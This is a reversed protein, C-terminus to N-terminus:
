SVFQISISGIGGDIDIRYEGEGFTGGDSLSKGDVTASGIGKDLRIQYDEPSGILNLEAAGVGLNLDNTGTLQGTFELKGVGMDMALDHLQGDRIALKGTGTSVKARTRANLSGIDVAGAGLDLDLTGASLADIDVKGAGTELSADAFVFGEPITLIVTVSEGSTSFAIKKESIKLTGDDEGVILDKHNSEVSFSDGTVIKLAAAGINLSLNEPTKSVPYSKMEGASGGDSLGTIAGTLSCLGSIIAVILFVALAMACSKVLKQFPTM